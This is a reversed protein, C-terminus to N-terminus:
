FNPPLLGSKLMLYFVVEVGNYGLGKIQMLYVKCGVHSVGVVRVFEEMTDKERPIDEEPSVGCTERWDRCIAEAARSALRGSAGMEKFRERSFFEKPTMKLFKEIDKKDIVLIDLLVLRYDEGLVGSEDVWQLTHRRIEEGVVRPTVKNM